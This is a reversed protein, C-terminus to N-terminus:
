PCKTSCGAVIGLLYNKNGTLPTPLPNSEITRINKGKRRALYRAYSNHKVDVGIASPGAAGAGGPRHRTRNRSVYATQKGPVMRDSSQNWNVHYPAKISNSPLTPNNKASGVVSLAALNMTYISSDVRVTNWIRHQDARKAAKKCKDGCSTDGCSVCQHPSYFFKGGSCDCTSYYSLPTNEGTYVTYSM